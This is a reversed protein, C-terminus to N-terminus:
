FQAALKAARVDYWEPTSLCRGDFSVM